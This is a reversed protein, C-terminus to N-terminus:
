EVLPNTNGQTVFGLIMSADFVFFEEGNLRISFATMTGVVIRDGPSIYKSPFEESVPDKGPGVKVVELEIAHGGGRKAKKAGGQGDPIVLNMKTVQDRPPLKKALINCYIPFFDEGTTPTKSDTM